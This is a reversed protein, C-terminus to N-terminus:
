RQEGRDDLPALIRAALDPPCGCDVLELLEHVDIREHLALRDALEPPFGAARLRNARWQIWRPLEGLLFRVPM